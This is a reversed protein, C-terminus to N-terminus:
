KFFYLVHNHVTDFLPLASKKLAGEERDVVTIVHDTVCKRGRVREVVSLASGGTTTVDEIVVVKEGESLVGILDDKIGYDKKKKRFVAMRKKLKLSVATAIPVGGLEVCAIVDFDINKLTEAICSAILDLLDPYCCALKVDVYINSKKGSSLVFEGKKIAGVKIM